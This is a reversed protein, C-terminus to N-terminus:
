SFDESFDASFERVAGITVTTAGFALTSALGSATIDITSTSIVATGFQISSSSGFTTVKEVEVTRNTFASPILSIITRIWSDLDNSKVDKDETIVYGSIYQGAVRILGYNLYVSQNSDVTNSLGSFFDNDIREADKVDPIPNLTAILASIMLNLGIGLLVEGVTATFGTLSSFGSVGALAPLAWFAFAAIIAGLIFMGKSNGGSGIISPVLWLETDEEKIKSTHLNEEKIINNDKNILYAVEYMDESNAINNAYRKLKPFTHQIASSLDIYDEVHFFVSSIDTYKQLASHFNVKVKM